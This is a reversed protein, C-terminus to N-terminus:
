SIAISAAASGTVTDTLLVGAATASVVVAATTGATLPISLGTITCDSITGIAVIGTLDPTLDCSAGSVATLTNSTGPATFLQARLTITTGILSQAVTTSFRASLATLTGDRPIVQVPNLPLSTVDITGATENVGTAGNDGSLPLVTVTGVLGGAITTVVAASGSSSTLFTGAGSPGQPGTAGAAGAPGPQGQPGTAGRQGQQNWTIRKEGKHCKAKTGIVRLDGSKKAYCGTIVQSHPSTAAMAISTGGAALAIVGVGAMVLKM